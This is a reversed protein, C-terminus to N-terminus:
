ENGGCRSCAKRNRVQSIPIADITRKLGSCSITTHYRNGENTIYVKDNPNKGCKECAKYKEGSDNRRNKLKKYDVRSISLKLHTCSKSFHYVDGTETVYVLQEESTDTNKGTNDYGTFARVTCGTVMYFGKFGIYPIRPEVKYVAKLKIEDKEMIKSFSYIIGGSGGRICSNNLYDKGILKNVQSRVYAESFAVSGAASSLLEGKDEEKAAYGYVALERATQHLASELQIHVSLIDFMSFINIVFFLFLPLAMSAEVTISGEKKMSFLKKFCSIGPSIGKPFIISEKPSIRLAFGKKIKSIKKSKINSLLASNEM